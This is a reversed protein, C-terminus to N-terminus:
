ADGEDGSCILNSALFLIIVCKKTELNISIQSSTVRKCTIQHVRDELVSKINRFIESYLEQILSLNKGGIEQEAPCIFNDVRITVLDTDMLMKVRQFDLLSDLPFGFQERMFIGAFDTIAKRQEHLILDEV